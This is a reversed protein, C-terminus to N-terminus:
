ANVTQGEQSAQQPPQPTLLQDILPALQAAIQAEFEDRTGAETAEILRRTFEEYTVTNLDIGEDESLFTERIYDLALGQYSEALM